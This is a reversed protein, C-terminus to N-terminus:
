AILGPNNNAIFPQALEILNNDEDFLELDDINPKDQNLDIYAEAACITDFSEAEEGTTMDILTYM